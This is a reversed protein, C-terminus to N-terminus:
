EIKGRLRSIERLAMQMEEELKLQRELIYKYDKDLNELKMHINDHVSDSKFKETVNKLSINKYWKALGAVTGLITIMGLVATLLTEYM